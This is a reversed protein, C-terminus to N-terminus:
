RAAEALIGDEARLTRGAKEVSNYSEWNEKASKVRRFADEKRGEYYNKGTPQPELRKTTKMWYSLNKYDEHRPTLAEMTTEPEGVFSATGHIEVYYVRGAALKARLAATNTSWAVFMYEDPPLQVYFHSEVAADGLWNGKEDLIAVAAARDGIDGPWPRLFVVTASDAAATPSASRPVETMHGLTPPILQVCGASALTLAVM